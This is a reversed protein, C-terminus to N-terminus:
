ASLQGDLYDLVTCWMLMQMSLVKSAAQGEEGLCLHKLIETTM